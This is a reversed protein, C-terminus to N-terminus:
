GCHKEVDFFKSYVLDPQPLIKGGARHIVVGGIEALDIRQFHPHCGFQHILLYADGTLVRM